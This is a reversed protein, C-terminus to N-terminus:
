AADRWLEFIETLIALARADSIKTQKRAANVPVGQQLAERFRKEADRRPRGGVRKTEPCPEADTECRVGLNELPAVAVTKRDATPFIRSLGDSSM